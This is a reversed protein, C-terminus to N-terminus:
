LPWRVPEMDQPQVVPRRVGFAEVHPLIAAPQDDHVIRGAAMLVLRDAHQVIMDLWHTAVFVTRGSQHLGLLIKLVQQVGPYDLSAFPEDLVIVEPDMALIGAIALRRKEGGSLDYTRKSEAGALGVMQLAEQVKLETTDPSMGLNQPGFAVDDAVTDAVIQADPDQFVMGVNRRVFKLHERVSKGRVTVLGWHSQLLGNLHKLLTTKGSGNQGALVVLTGREVVLNVDDLALTGDPFRHSLNKIEIMATM